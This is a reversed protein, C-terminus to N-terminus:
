AVAEEFISLARDIEPGTVTLPPMLRAINKDAGCEIIILGADLCRKMVGDLRERDPGGDAKIFEVGIMLGLGRVDGIGKRRNKIDLLRSLM